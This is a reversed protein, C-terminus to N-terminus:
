LLETAITVSRGLAWRGIFRNRESEPAAIETNLLADLNARLGMRVLLAGDAPAPIDTIHLDGSPRM